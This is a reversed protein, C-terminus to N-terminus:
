EIAPLVGRVDLRHANARALVKGVSTVQVAQPIQDWWVEIQQLSSHLRLREFFPDLLADDVPGFGLTVKAKEVIAAREDPSIRALTSDLTLEKSAALRVSGPKLEHPIVLDPIEIEHGAVEVLWPVGNLEAGSALYGPQTSPYFERFPKLTNVQNIRIADLIDLHDLWDSGLPLPGDLLDNFLQGMAELGHELGPALPSYQQIAQFVTLGRLADQDIQDVIEISREIGARVLRDPGREARDTLLAALLEYDDERDSVAAGNQAKKYARQFGPDAFVSLRGSRILSAIVRDDLKIIREQIQYISEDTYEAVVSRATVEAIERARSESIGIVVDGSAQVQTSNAGASQSQRNM